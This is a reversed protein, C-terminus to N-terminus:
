RATGWDAKNADFRALHTLQIPRGGRAPMLYLDNLSHTALAVHNHTFVILKGDPSWAPNSSNGNGNRNDTLRRIGTGSPRITFLNSSKGMEVAKGDRL